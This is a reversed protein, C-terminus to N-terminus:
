IIHTSQRRLIKWTVKEFQKSSVLTIKHSNIQILTIQMFVIYKLTVWLSEIFSAIKRKMIGLSCQNMEFNAFFKTLKGLGITDEMLNYKVQNGSMWNTNSEQFIELQCLQKYYVNKRQFLLLLLISVFLCTFFLRFRSRFKFVSMINDVSSGERILLYGLSSFHQGNGRRCSQHM